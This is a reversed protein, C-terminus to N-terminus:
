ASIEIFEANTIGDYRGPSCTLVIVQGRDGVASFVEGMKDLRDPDSFGLADDIVVPVTDEKAVLAAGALRALIGLQEKAGGSLSDFPVTCGELTRSSIILDADVDVQFTDGFVTRGLRELETRYPLVYRQRTNDRHRNMTDRLLEAAAAREQIRVHEAAARDREAEADDLEGHRGESGMVGLEAALTHLELKAAELEGTVTDVATAAADREAAVAAPDAAAYREALAAVLLDAECQAAADVAAEAAVSDDAVAARLTALRDRMETLATAATQVRERLVAARTSKEACFATAAVALKRRAEADVRAGDLAAAASALEAASDAADVDTQPASARLEALVARLRVPDDGDCVAELTATLKASDVLLTQRQQHASRAAALDAVGGQALADRVVQQAALLDARLRVASAGPNIRVSLVGPVDVTVAATAPQVWQQGAALSRRTGDVTVDLDAPATFEVTGADSQLQAELRAVLAASQEIDDLVEDSVAIASLQGTIQVLATHADDIRQVRGALKDAEDRALCAKATAQATDFRRQAVTLADAAAADAQAAVDAAKAAEAQQDQATTCEAMLQALADARRAVDVILEQRQGNALASNASKAAVARAELQAQNLQDALAAVVTNAQQAAALRARAPALLGALGALAATVQEHRVVRDDVEDLRTRCRRVDAEAAALREITSKWERTPRGTATFYRLYETDIRDILLSDVASPGADAEGAAADLARSLADSGSLNVADTSAAQLVRQAEWLTTDVTDALMAEVREHAQDGTLNERKPALIELETMAKKHFRKRYVFRYPGTTIEAEVEAGADLHSPKVQKVNRHTSRDRYTMLLDLAELMSSKGIENPGCVVVVGHDPFSLERDAVGRFNKLRLRHLIM